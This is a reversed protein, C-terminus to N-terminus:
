VVSYSALITVRLADSSFALVALEPAMYIARRARPVGRM